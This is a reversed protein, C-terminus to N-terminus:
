QGIEGIKDYIRKTVETYYLLDAASLEGQNIEGLKTLTEAYQEMYSSYSELMNLADLPDANTYSNIFDVYENFFQEYGDMMAKFEPNVAGVDIDPIVPVTGEESGELEMDSNENSKYSSYDESMSGRVSVHMINFGVYEITINIDDSYDAYMSKEYKRVDKDFGAEICKQIYNEYEEKTINEIYVSYSYDYDSVVQGSLSQPIPVLTAVGVTPWTINSFEMPFKLNVKLEKNGATYSLSVRNGNSDYAIYTNQGEEADITFGRDKCTSLYALYDSEETKSVIVSVEKESESLFAGVKSQPEPLVESISHTNWELDAVEVPAELRISMEENSIPKGLDLCYGDENYAKYGISSEDTEITYGFEKCKQIYKYYDAESTNIVDIWLEGSTNNHIDIKKSEPEPIKDGLFITSWEIEEVVKEKQATCARSSPVILVVGVLAILVHIYRRKEKVIQMGLVWAVGFCLTQLVLLVGALIQGRAFCIYACFACIFVAIILFKSFKGKRFKEVQKKSEEELRKEEAVQLLRENSRIREFEIEKNASARIKEITVADNEVILTKNGCFPCALIERGEDVTLTGGCHECLLSVSKVTEKESSM